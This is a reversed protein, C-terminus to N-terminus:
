RFHFAAFTFGMWGAPCELHIGPGDAPYFASLDRRAARRDRVFQDFGERIAGGTRLCPGQGM